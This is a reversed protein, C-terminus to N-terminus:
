ENKWAYLVLSFGLGQLDSESSRHSDQWSSLSADSHPHTDWLKEASLCTQFMFVASGMANGHLWNHVDWYVEVPLGDVLITQNGRFKWHLRKVKMVAKNDIRIVLCSDAAGVNGCEIAVDHTLGKDFFQAKAAYSKKGFVHERKAIFISKSKAQSTSMRKCAEKELDGLLLVLENNFVVGVYFGEVPEPSSGFKACSLDWYIDIKSSGVDLTKCGKRKSFLWPKIEVKCLCLSSADDISVSLGQGMLNKTWTLTILCSSHRRLRCKYVCSVLNQPARGSTSSSFDGVQVSNEGFCSPFDRM